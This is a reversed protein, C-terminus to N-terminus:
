EFDLLITATTSFDGATPIGGSSTPYARLALTSSSKDAGVTVSGAKEDPSIINGDKDLIMVSVDSKTTAFGQTVTDRNGLLNVDLATNAFNCSFKLQFDKPTYNAPIEGYAKNKFQHPTLRGLDVTLASGPMLTCNEPVSMEADIYILREPPDAPNIYNAKRYHWVKAVVGHFSIGSVVRKHIYLKAWGNGANNTSGTLGCKTNSQGQGTFPVSRSASYSDFKVSLLISLNISPSLAINGPADPSGNAPVTLMSSYYNGTVANPDSCVCKYEVTPANTVQVTSVLGDLSNHAEDIAGNLPFNTTVPSGSTPYCVGEDYANAVVSWGLLVPCLWKITRINRTM